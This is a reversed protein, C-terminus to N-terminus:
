LGTLLKSNRKIIDKDVNVWSLYNKYIEFQRNEVVFKIDISEYFNWVNNLEYRDKLEDQTLEINDTEKILFYTYKIARFIVYNAPFYDMKFEQDFYILKDYEYFCNVPVMDIYAHKLIIGMDLNEKTFQNLYCLNQNVHESSKLIDEYLYDFLNLAKDRDYKICNQLVKSLTNGKLFEMNLENNNIKTDVTNLGRLELEKINNYSDNIGQIGQSFLPKKKVTKDSYIVTAYANEAKRDTSVAAYDIKCEADIERCEVLFSNAFVEFVNNEIIDDYLYMEDAILSRSNLYYPMVREKLSGKPLYTDSYVEQTFKYDPVPYYFKNIKLESNKIINELEIKTYLVRGNKKFRKNIGDFPNELTQYSAGCFYKLGLRNEAAILIVGEPKLLSKIKKLYEEINEITEITGILVIYDYKKNLYMVNEVSNFVELNYRNKYRELISEMRLKDNEICTVSKCKECLMGTLAGFEGGIELLDADEKFDYWNLISQRTKSFNLFVEFDNDKTLIEDFDESKNNRIYSKIKLDLPNYNKEDINHTSKYSNSM